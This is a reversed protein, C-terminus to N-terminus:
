LYKAVAALSKKLFNQTLNHQLSDLYEGVM